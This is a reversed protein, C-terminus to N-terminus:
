EISRWLYLAAYSLYPSWDKFRATIEEKSPKRNLGWLKKLANQLGIDAVPFLDPRGLGSMLFSQATWPGIGRYSTLVSIVETDNMYRLSELNLENNAVAKSVEIIYEAKRTSFQMDRLTSVEISATIEPTPYRLVGEVSDGFEEVFRLSLTNAFSMNLQQHIISRILTGYLSFSKVLPFGAHDIFVKALDTRAFHEGIEALSENMGFISKIEEVQSMDIADEIVFSPSQLTGLGRLTVINGDEMPIRVVREQINVCNIPDGALRELANDFDYTHPITFEHQM